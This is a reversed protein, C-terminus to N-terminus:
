PKIFYIVVIMIATKIPLSDGFKVEAIILVGDVERNPVVSFEVPCSFEIRFINGSFKSRSVSVCEAAM